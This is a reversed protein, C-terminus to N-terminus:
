QNANPQAAPAPQQAAPAAQPQTKNLEEGVQQALDRAIGRQWIAAAQTVERFAINGDQLLKKGAAGSYFAAIEKLEQENFVKAYITAAEKELDGRRSALELAKQDVTQSIVQVMNPNRNIMETKLSQAVQPLIDDFEATSGLASVAARAAKLHSDAIEQAGAPLALVLITAIAATSRRLAAAMTM